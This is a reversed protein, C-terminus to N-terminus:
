AATEQRLATRYRVVTRPHVGIRRAIEDAALGRRTLMAIATRRERINPRDVPEGRLARLM